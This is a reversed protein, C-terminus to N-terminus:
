QPRPSMSETPNVVWFMGPVGGDQRRLASISCVVADLKERWHKLDLSLDEHIRPKVSLAM